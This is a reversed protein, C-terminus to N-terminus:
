STARCMQSVVDFVCNADTSIRPAVVLEPWRRKDGPAFTVRIRVLSPPMARDLWTEQWHPEMQGNGLTVLELYDVSFSQVNTLLVERQGNKENLKQLGNRDQAWRVALEGTKDGEIAIDFRYLGASGETALAPATVEIRGTEGMLGHPQGESPGGAGGEFPYVQELVRRLFRQTSAVDHSAADVLTAQLMARQSFRYAQLMALSMLSVLALAVVMEILSFGGRRLKM